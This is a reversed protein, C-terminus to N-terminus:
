LKKFFRLKYQPEWAGEGMIGARNGRQCGRGGGERTTRGWGAQTAEKSNRLCELRAGAGPGKFSGVVSERWCRHAGSRM